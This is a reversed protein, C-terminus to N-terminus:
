HACASINYASNNKTDNSQRRPIDKALGPASLTDAAIAATAAATFLLM